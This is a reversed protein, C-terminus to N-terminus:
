VIEIDQKFMWMMLMSAELEKFALELNIHWFM